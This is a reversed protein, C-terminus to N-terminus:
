YDEIRQDRVLEYHTQAAKVEVLSVALQEVTGCLLSTIATNLAEAAKLQNHVRRLRKYLTTCQKGEESPEILESLAMANLM